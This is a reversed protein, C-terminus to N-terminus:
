IEVRMEILHNKFGAKEYARRASENDAYVDLRFERVGKSISWEQLAQLIILNIGKGRHAPDVFMFGLYAHTRHKLYPKSAELRAYGSGVIRGSLEAVILEVEPASIMAALDYYHIEGERLTSDFPREAQIVGQEFCFLVELDEKQAPRITLQEM